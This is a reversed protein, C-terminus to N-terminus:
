NYPEKASCSRDFYPMRNTKAVRYYVAHTFPNYSSLTPFKRFSKSSHCYELFQTNSIQQLLLLLSVLTSCTHAHTCIYIYVSSYICIHVYVYICVCTICMYIYMYICMYVSLYVFVFIHIHTHIYVFMYIHIYMHIYM